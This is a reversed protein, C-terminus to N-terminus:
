TGCGHRETKGGRRCGRIAGNRDLSLKSGPYQMVALVTLKM